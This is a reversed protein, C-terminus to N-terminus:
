RQRRLALLLALGGLGIVGGYESDVACGGLNDSVDDECTLVPDSDDPVCVGADGDKRTCEDGEQLDACAAKDEDNALAIAPALAVCLSILFPVFRRSM